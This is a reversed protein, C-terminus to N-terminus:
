TNRNFRPKCKTAGAKIAEERTEFFGIHAWRDKVKVYGDYGRLSIKVRM